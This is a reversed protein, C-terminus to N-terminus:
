EKIKESNERVRERAFKHFMFHESFEIEILYVGKSSRFRQFMYNRASYMPIVQGTFPREAVIM